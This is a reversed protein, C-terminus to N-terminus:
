LRAVKQFGDAFLQVKLSLEDIKEDHEALKRNDAESKQRM